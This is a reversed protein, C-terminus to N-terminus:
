TFHMSLFFSLFFNGTINYIELYHPESPIDLVTVNIDCKERGYENQILLTYKGGDNKQSKYITLSTHDNNFNELKIRNSDKISQNNLSWSITPSPYAAYEVDLFIKQGRKVIINDTYKSNLYIKPKCKLCLNARSTLEKKSAIKASYEAIDRPGVDNIYLTHQTGNIVIKFKKSDNIEQNAKYWRLPYNNRNLECTFKAQVHLETLIHEELGKVFKIEQEEVTLLATTFTNNIQCKIEGSDLIDVSSLKLKLETGIMEVTFKADSEIIERNQLFWKIKVIDPKSVYKIKNLKCIFECSENEKINVDKLNEVIKIDDEIVYLKAFSTAGGIRVEITANNESHIDLNNITMELRNRENRSIFKEKIDYNPFIEVNNILWIIPKDNRNVTCDFIVSEGEKATQDKLPRKIIVPIELVTLIGHCTLEGIRITYIGSDEIKSDQIRLIQKRNLNLIEFRKFNIPTSDKFWIVPLKEGTKILNSRNLECEFHANDGENVTM